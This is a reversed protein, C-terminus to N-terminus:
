GTTPAILLWKWADSGFYTAQGGNSGVTFVQGNPAMLLATVPDYSANARASQAAPANVSSKATSSSSSSFASNTNNDVPGFGPYFSSPEGTTDGPPRPANRAGRVTQDDSHPLLCDANLKAHLDQGTTDEGNRRFAPYLYGPANRTPAQTACNMPEQDTPSVIGFHAKNDGPAARFGNYVTTPYITLVTRLGDLRVPAAQIASVTVLNSLLTFLPGENEKLLADLQQASKVGNDILRRYAPDDARISDSLTALDKAFSAFNNAVDRQTDLVIKGDNILKITQPLADTAAKTLSDGRAILRALDPGTGTFAQDLYTIVSALQTRDVSNVLRDLNLLLKDNPIPITGGTILDGDQLTAGTDSTPQLDLYQEGVASLNAVVAKIGDKPIRDKWHEKIALQVDVHKKDQSLELSKVQGVQVGRLTVEAHPYIGGSNDFQATVTFPKNLLRDGLGVYQFGAYGIGLVTILMFAVLQIRVTRRIV